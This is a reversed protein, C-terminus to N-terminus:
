GAVIGACTSQPSARPLCRAARLCDGRTAAAGALEPSGARSRAPCDCPSGQERPGSETRFEPELPCPPSCRLHNGAVAETPVRLLLDVQDRQELVDGAFVHVHSGLGGQDAVQHVAGDPDRSGLPRNGADDHRFVTLLQIGDLLRRALMPGNMGADAVGTRRVAERPRDSALPRPGPHPTAFASSPFAATGSSRGKTVPDMPSRPVLGDQSRISSHSVRRM